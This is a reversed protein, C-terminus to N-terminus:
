MAWGITPTCLGVEQNACWESHRSRHKNEYGPTEDYRGRQFYITSQDLMNIFLVHIDRQYLYLVQRTLFNSLFCDFSSTQQLILSVMPNNRDLSAVRNSDKEEPDGAFIIISPKSAAPLIYLL